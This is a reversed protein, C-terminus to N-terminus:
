FIDKIYKDTMHMRFTLSQGPYVGGFDFDWFVNGQTIQSAPNLDPDVWCEGGLIAGKLTLDRLFANVGEQVETVYNKTIGQDVAWLHAAELSDAIIDATRVINIFQWKPDTSLTLNGWLRTGNQQVFLNVKAANLINSAATADSMSFPIAREVGVVGSATQNSPSAWWGVANDKAAFLGAAVASGWVPVTNGEDDTTLCRNEVMYARKDDYLTPSALAAADTTSPGDKLYIARLTNSVGKLEAVVANSTPNGATGGEQHTFGPAILIRPKVQALSEAALFAHVGEYTGNANVGGVVNALTEADTEGEEVRVVVIVAKSQELIANVHAPLTGDSAGVATLLKAAMAPSGAIVVPKNIPFTDVDARPATGVIGIVSTSAVAISRTGDDIFVVQVGHFFNGIAAM